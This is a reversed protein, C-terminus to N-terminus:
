ISYTTVQVALASSVLTPSHTSPRRSRNRAPWVALLQDRLARSTIQASYTPDLLPLMRMM